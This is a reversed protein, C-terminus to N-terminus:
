PFAWELILVAAGEDERRSTVPWRGGLGVSVPTFFSGEPFPRLWMGVALQLATGEDRRSLADVTTTGLIEFIPVLRGGFYEQNFALNWTLAKQRTEALGLAGALRRQDATLRIQQSYALELQLNLDPLSELVTFARGALVLFAWEGDGGIDKSRSGTPAAVEARLSFDDLWRHSEPECCLLVQASFEIDALNSENPGADPFRFTYPIEMGLQLTERLFVWTVGASLELDDGDDDTWGVDLELDKEIFPRQTFIPEAPDEWARHRAAVSEALLLTSLVLAVSFSM